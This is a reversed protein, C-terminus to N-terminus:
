KQYYDAEFADACLPLGKAWAIPQGMITAVAEASSTGIPVDLVVEDHVHMAITFGAEHLRMMSVALCDRAVAQVINEVLKPGYTDDHTWKRTTQNVGEFTIVDRGYKGPVIRPRVYALERGSPLRILLLHGRMYFSLGNPLVTPHGEIAKRAAKDVHWWFAVIRPNAARWADVLPQLETEDLGMELAGMAKLAGVSGGYGCALTAVKGKQRLEYEPNGKVIKEIPVKFMQAATAEYLRGEGRFEELVWKEGSLWAIVRAEIASFDSVIFRCGESPIFATRILQSLTDAVNGFLTELMDFHGDQLLDRAAGLDKLQNRPLNHVQILRGAWRGTRSAGYFQLIGRARGDACVAKEMAVYKKTSTKGMERRLRILSLVDTNETEIEALAKKDVSDLMVGQRALWAKIQAISNPNELGTVVEAERRLKEQHQADCAIAQRVLAMDLRVGRDNIRQDLSWLAQETDNPAQKALKQRITREVAVDQMCYNKFQEWKEPAHAPLNRTRGGNVKTPKCPVSFYRILAKGEKMKQADEPLRLAKGVTDLSGALGLTWAHVMTCRWQEPPMERHFYATLCTREFSANFATKVIGPDTLADFVEDPLEEGSALDIVQIADDDFAYAFLLISFDPASAYAYVGAKSLDVSSYTEIDVALTKM